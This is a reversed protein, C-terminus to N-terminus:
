GDAPNIFTTGPTCHFNAAYPDRRPKGNADVCLKFTCAAVKGNKACTCDNCGDAHKFSSGPTCSFSPLNPDNHNEVSRIQRPRDICLKFTCGGATGDANGSYHNKNCTNTSLSFSHTSVFVPTAVMMPWSVKVQLVSEKQQYQILHDKLVIEVSFEQVSNLKAM